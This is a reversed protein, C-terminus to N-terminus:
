FHILNQCKQYSYCSKAELSDITNKKLFIGLVLGSVAFCSVFATFLIMLNPSDSPQEFLISVQHTSFHVKMWVYFNNADQEYGQNLVSQGDAYVTPTTGKPVASKPITINGFGTTGALGTISFSLITTDSGTNASISVNSM